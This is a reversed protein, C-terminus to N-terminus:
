YWVQHHVSNYGIVMVVKTSLTSAWYIYHTKLMGSIPNIPVYACTISPQHFCLSHSFNGIIKKVVLSFILISLSADHANVITFM